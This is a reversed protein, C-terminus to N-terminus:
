SVTFPGPLSQCYYKLGTFEVSFIPWDNPYGMDVEKGFRRCIRLLANLFAMKALTLLSVVYGRVLDSVQDIAEKGVTDKKLMPCQNTEIKTLTACGDPDAGTFAAWKEKNKPLLSDRYNNSLEQAKIWELCEVYPDIWPILLAPEIQGSVHRLRSPVATCVM